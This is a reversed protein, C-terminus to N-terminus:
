GGLIQNKDVNTGKGLCSIHMHAGSVGNVEAKNECNIQAHKRGLFENGIVILFFHRNM